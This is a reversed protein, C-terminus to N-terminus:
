VGMQNQLKDLLEYCNARIHIFDDVGAAKFAEVHDAPYGAVLVLTDPKTAKIGKALPPVLKPYTKDTSCIVVAGAGSAIAAQIAQDTTGFGENGIVEFAGVELFGRSFDARAKHQPTPGLNALFVKPLGGTREAFVESRRRLDEFPEAGRKIAVPTIVPDSQEGTTLAKWLDNLTAGAAAAAVATTVRRDPTAQALKELADRRADADTSQRSAKLARTREQQLAVHDIPEPTLPEDTPNPYMNTGVFIDRRQAYAKARQDSVATVQQQPFGASLAKAMGGQKEVERFLDWSKRALTDTLNEVYWSGGAPDVARTLGAEERLVTHANRAVRRSFDSPVRAIEDKPGIHLSDCGGLVGSFAETTARLMNVDSDYLTKNWGSTRAHVHIKRAEEGGGFAAVIKAWLMRAARLKAIEMFLNSGLSFAFLVRPAAQDITVGRAQLERLYEVGTALAFALEQVANGGGDHYPHGRVLVTRLGPANAAAWRTLQALDEYAGNLSRPLRGSGALAGLPDDGICGRLKAASRSQKGLMALVMALLPLGSAGTQIFIPTQELDVGTLAATVDGLCSISLGGKGVRGSETTDADEGLLTALDLRMNVATQGRELDARLAQNFSEPTANALEQSVEWPAHKYGLVQTGRVFPAFGPLSGMHPLGDVDEARYMPQLAIGEHTKTILRKEFSGGKLAAEAAARWEDYGTTPFETFRPVASDEGAQRDIPQNSM